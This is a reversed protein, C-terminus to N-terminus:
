KMVACFAASHSARSGAGFASFAGFTLAALTSSALGFAAATRWFIPALTGCRGFGFGCWVSVILAPLAQMLPRSAPSAMMVSLVTKVSSV